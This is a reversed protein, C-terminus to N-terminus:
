KQRQEHADGEDDEEDNAEDENMYQIATNKEFENIDEDTFGFSDNIFHDENNDEQVDDILKLNTSNFRSITRSLTKEKNTFLYIKAPVNAFNTKKMKEGM